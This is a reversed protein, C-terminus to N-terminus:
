GRLRGNPLPGSAMTMQVMAKVLTLKLPLPRPSSRFVSAHSADKGFLSLRRHNESGEM